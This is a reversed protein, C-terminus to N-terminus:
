GCDPQPRAGAGGAPSKRHCQSVSRGTQGSHRRDQGARAPRLGGLLCRGIRGGAALHGPQAVRARDPEGLRLWAAVLSNHALFTDWLRGLAESLEINETAHRLCDQYRDQLVAAMAQLTAHRARIEGAAEPSFHGPGLAQFIAEAEALPELAGEIESWDRMYRYALQDLANMLCERGAPGAERSLAVARQTWALARDLDNM